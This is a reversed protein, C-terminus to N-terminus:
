GGADAAVCGQWGTEFDSKQAIWGSVFISVALKVDGSQRRVHCSCPPTAPNFLRRCAPSAPLAPAHLEPPADHCFRPGSGATLSAQGGACRLGVLMQLGPRGVWRARMPVPLLLQEGETASSSSGDKSSSAGDKSGGSSISSSSGFWRQWMSQQGAVTAPEQTQTEQQLSGTSASQRMGVGGADASGSSSGRVANSSGPRHLAAPRASQRSGGSHLHGPDGPESGGAAAATKGM